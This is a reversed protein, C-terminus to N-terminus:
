QVAQRLGQQERNPIFRSVMRGGSEWLLLRGHATPISKFNSRSPVNVGISCVSKAIMWGSMSFGTACILEMVYEDAGNGVGLVGLLFVLMVLLIGTSFM